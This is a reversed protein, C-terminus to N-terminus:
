PKRWSLILGIPVNILARIIASKYFYFLDIQFHFFYIYIMVSITEDIITFLFIVISKLQENWSFFIQKALLFLLVGTVIKSIISPGLYGQNLDDILGVLAFFLIMNIESSALNRKINFINEIIFLYILLFYLNLSFGFFISLYSCLYTIAILLGWRIIQKM